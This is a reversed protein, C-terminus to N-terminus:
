RAQYFVFFSNDLWAISQTRALGAEKMWAELQDLSYRM